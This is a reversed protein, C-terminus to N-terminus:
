DPKVNRVRAVATVIVVFTPVSAFSGGSAGQSRVKDVRALPTIAVKDVIFIIVLVLANNQPPGRCLGDLEMIIRQTHQRHPRGRGDASM